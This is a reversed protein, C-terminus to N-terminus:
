TNYLYSLLFFFFFKFGLLFNANRVMGNNVKKLLNYNNILMKIM